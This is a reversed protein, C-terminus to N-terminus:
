AAAAELADAPRLTDRIDQGFADGIVDWGLRHRRSFLELYPGPSVSEVLDIFHEPKRSHQHQQPADIVNTKLRGLLPLTGRRAYLLYEAHNPAISAAFPSPCGTKRWVLTQRYTFGWADVVDFAARLYRNTTWLYLHADREALEGVPLAKIQALTMQQYPLPHDSRPGFSSTGRVHPEYEWPPDAVITRYKM